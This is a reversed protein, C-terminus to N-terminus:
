LRKWEKYKYKDYQVELPDPLSEFKGIEGIFSSVIRLNSTGYRDKEIGFLRFRDELGNWNNIESPTIHYIEGKYNISDFDEHYPSGISICVDCDQFTNKSDRADSHGYIPKKQGDGTKQPNVQQVVVPIIGYQRKLNVFVKQSITDITRKTNEGRTEKALAVHDIAAIFIKNPNKFMYLDNGEPDKGYSESQSKCRQELYMHMSISSATTFISLITDLINIYDRLGKDKMLEYLEKDTKHKIGLLKKISTLTKKHIFLYRIAAKAVIMVRDIELSYLVIEVDEINLKGKYILDVLNFIFQDYLFASKGTRPAGLILYYMSKAIGGTPLNLKDVTFPIGINLGEYGRKVANDLLSQLKFTKGIEKAM